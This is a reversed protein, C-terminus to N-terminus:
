KGGNEAFVATVRAFIGNCYAIALGYNTVAVGATRLKELRRLIQNRTVMCGGCQIALKYSGLDAPLPDLNSIFTFSLKQGTKKQLLAPIKVRGIDDCKNVTHSCSELMLVKDGDKLTDIVPSGSLYWAFNGKMRSFLISFSTLPIEKPVVSSVFKFAQSDTIVLKPTHNKLYDALQADKVCVAVAGIDLLHRITQVQPLILRGEPASADIPIVLVVEEGARVIGELLTDATLLNAPIRKKIEARLTEVDPRVCSFALVTEGEVSVPSAFLDTKNQVCLVPIDKQRCAQLLQEDDSTWKEAFVLVALDVQDLSERTRAVRKEGLVSTDDIGATDILVVPGVGLIELPKKVPDTTTGAEASVVSVDQGCLANVLSSKGANMKGFFGIHIRNLPAMSENYLLERARYM